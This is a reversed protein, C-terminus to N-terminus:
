RPRPIRLAPKTLSSSEGLRQPKAAEGPTSLDLTFACGRGAKKAAYMCEDAADVLETANVNMSGPCTIAGISVSLRPTDFDFQENLKRVGSQLRSAPIHVDTLYCDTLIAAFEDGGHRVLLDYSRLQRALTQSVATLVEDGVTHGYRDNVQKFHDLDIMLVAISSQRARVLEWEQRLRRNFVTRNPLGTVSDILAQRLVNSVASWRIMVDDDMELAIIQDHNTFVSADVEATGQEDRSLPQGATETDLRISVIAELPTEAWRQQEIHNSASIRKLIESAEVIGILNGSADEVFLYKAANLDVREAVQGLLMGSEVRCGLPTESAAIEIKSKFARM